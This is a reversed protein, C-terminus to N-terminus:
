LLCQKHQSCKTSLGNLSSDGLRVAFLTPVRTDRIAPVPVPYPAPSQFPVLVAFGYVQHVPAAGERVTIHHKSPSLVSLLRHAGFRHPWCRGWRGVTLAPPCSAFRGKRIPPARWCYTIWVAPTPIPPAVQPLLRHPGIPSHTFCTPQHFAQDPNSPRQPTRPQSHLFQHSTPGSRSWCMCFHAYFVAM